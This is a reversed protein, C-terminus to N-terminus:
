KESVNFASIRHTFIFHPTTLFQLDQHFIQNTTQENDDAEELPHKHFFKANTSDPPM